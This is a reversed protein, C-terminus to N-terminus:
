TEYIFHPAINEGMKLSSVWHEVWCLMFDIILLGLSSLEQKNPIRELGSANAVHKAYM